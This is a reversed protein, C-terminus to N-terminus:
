VAGGKQKFHSVLIRDVRGWFEEHKKGYATAIKSELENHHDLRTLLGKLLGPRTDEIYRTLWYGRVYQYMITDRDGIRLAENGGPSTKHSWHEFVELTEKRVTPKEFYRDVTVMALGEKMWTPLKLHSIFAHVLEHCTISQVKEDVDQKVFIRDGISRDGLQILHPPKVGVARRQGYSREWGGAYPWVKRARFAWLPMFAALLIKRPWPASHFVFRLWSTMVYVRCDQPTDLGWNEHILRVSKECAQRILEAADREEADFFLTLGNISMREMFM